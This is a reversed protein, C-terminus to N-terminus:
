SMLTKMDFGRLRGYDIYRLFQVTEKNLDYSKGASNGKGTPKRTKPINDFLSKSKDRLRTQYFEERASKALTAHNLYFKEDEETLVAGTAINMVGRPNSLDFPNGRQCINKMLAAVSTTDAKTIRGSFEHHLSYEDNDDLNCVDYLFNKYKAKEHKILNWKCVAEKRRTFGIIGSSSKAPKNYAKELAQDIM